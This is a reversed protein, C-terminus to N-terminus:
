PWSVGSLAGLMEKDSANDAEHILFPYLDRIKQAIRKGPVVLQTNKLLTDAESGLMLRLNEFAAFSTLMVFQIRGTNLAKIVSANNYSRPINRSYAQVYELQAGREILTERLIERGTQGRVIYVHRGALDQLLPHHLLGESNQQKRKPAIAVFLNEAALAAQTREGVAAILASALNHRLEEGVEHFVGRVANTSVFILVDGAQVRDLSAHLTDTDALNIELSPFVYAVGGRTTVMAEMGISQELPRTILVGAGDLKVQGRDAESSV